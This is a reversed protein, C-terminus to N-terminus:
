ADFRHERLTQDSLADTADAAAVEKLLRVFRQLARRDPASVEIRSHFMLRASVVGDSLTVGYGDFDTHATLGGYRRAEGDREGAALVQNYARYADAIDIKSDMLSPLWPHNASYTARRSPPPLEADVIGSTNQGTYQM